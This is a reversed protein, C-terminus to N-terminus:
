REWIFLALPGAACLALFYLWVSLPIDTIPM